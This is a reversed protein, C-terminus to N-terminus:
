NAFDVSIGLQLRGPNMPYHLAGFYDNGGLLGKNAHSYLVYFRTKKLKMNVYANMFPYNGLKKEHQTYFAMTAPQYAPAYYRTYYNCDVGFQVQLVKAVKFLVFMNSYLAFKPLSLVDENTSTQFTARNNWNFVGFRLKQDLSASVVQVSGGEQTPMAKDNFYVMNQINEFGASVVTGTHPLDIRGGVRFRREKGFDNNWAFHNSIYHNMLFPTETNKFFGEGTIKVSDGFLKFKTSVSGYIDIDGAVPGVIGFQGTVSYTLLSGRQKTLQGGVWLLNETTKPAISFDPFPTLEKPKDASHLMTDVTQNYRRIEHTVYASLGFKAYKHFGELLSVGLTNKLRWYGTGDETGDVSLYSNEFFNKDDSVSNNYFNHRNKKYDLTWIFSSVPIYTKLITDELEEEHYYGVKYRHNMLFQSGKVRSFADSLNVPIAKADISPDGGQLQAPDLIYLDDTIGGNEAVVANYSNFSAQLEYRDSIYSGSLGWTFNKAHQADYGGKSHLYDLMAGIQIKKGANGSFLAKLRDQGSLRGGGWNYSLLTMPIRTNYYVQDQADYVWPRLVDEFYFESTAKRDFFINNVGPGGYNGTTAYADSTLAPISFQYYNYLLTDITAPEHLGLPATATWAYSPELTQEKKAFTPLALAMMIIYFILRKM